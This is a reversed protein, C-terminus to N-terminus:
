GLNHFFKLLALMAHSVGAFWGFDLVAEAQLPQLLDRRKPGAFLDYAHTVAEKPGLAVTKSELQVSIDTLNHDAPHDLLVPLARDVTRQKLQDEVPLVLAAFYQVDAGIYKLPAKWEQLQNKEEE